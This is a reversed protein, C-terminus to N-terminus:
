RKVREILDAAVGAVESEDGFTWEAAHSFTISDGVRIWGLVRKGCYTTAEIQVGGAPHVALIKVRFLDEKRIPPNEPVTM